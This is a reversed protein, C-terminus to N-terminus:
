PKRPLAIDKSGPHCPGALFPHTQAGNVSSEDGDDSDGHSCVALLLPASTLSRHGGIGSHSRQSSPKGAQLGKHGWRQESRLHAFVGTPRPSSVWM